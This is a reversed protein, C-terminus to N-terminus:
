GDLRRLKACEEGVGYGRLHRDEDTAAGPDSFGADDLLRARLGLGIADDHMGDDRVRGVKLTHGPNALAARREQGKAIQLLSMLAGFSVAHKMSSRPWAVGATCAAAMCSMRARVILPWRTESCTTNMAAVLRRVSRAPTEPIKSGTLLRNAVRTSSVASILSQHTHATPAPMAGSTMAKKRKRGSSRQAKSGVESRVLEGKGRM